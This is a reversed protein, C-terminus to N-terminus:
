RRVPFGPMVAPDVAFRPEAGFYIQRTGSAAWFGESEPAYNPSRMEQLGIIGFYFARMAQEDEAQMPVFVQRLRTNQHAADRGASFAMDPGRRKGTRRDTEDAGTGGLRRAVFALIGFLVLLGLVDLM